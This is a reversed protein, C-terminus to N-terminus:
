SFMRSIYTFLSKDFTESYFRCIKLLSIQLNHCRTLSNVLYLEMNIYCKISLVSREGEGVGGRGSLYVLIIYFDLICM